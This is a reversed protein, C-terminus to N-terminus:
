KLRFVSNMAAVMSVLPGTFASPELLLSCNSRDVGLQLFRGEKGRATADELGDEEEEM